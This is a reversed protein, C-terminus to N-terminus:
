LCPTRVVSRGLVSGFETVFLRLDAVFSQCLQRSILLFGCREGCKETLERMFHGRPLVHIQTKCM